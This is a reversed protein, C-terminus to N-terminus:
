DASCISWDAVVFTQIHGDNL